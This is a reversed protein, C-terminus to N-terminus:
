NGQETQLPAELFDFSQPLSVTVVIIPIIKPYTIPTEKGHPEKVLTHQSMRHIVRHKMLCRDDMQNM